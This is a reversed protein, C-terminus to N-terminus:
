THDRQHCEFCNPELRGGSYSSFFKGFKECRAGYASPYCPREKSGDGGFNYFSCLHDIENIIKLASASQIVSNVAEHM